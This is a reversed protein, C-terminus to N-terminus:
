GAGMALDFWDLLREDHGQQRSLSALVFIM